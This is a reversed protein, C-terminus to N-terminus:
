PRCGFHDEYDIMLGYETNLDRLAQYLPRPDFAAISASGNSHKITANRTFHPKDAVQAPLTTIILTLGALTGWRKM